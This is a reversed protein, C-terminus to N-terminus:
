RSLVRKNLASRPSTSTVRVCLKQVADNKLADQSGTARVIVEEMGRVRAAADANSQQPDVAVEAQYLNVRTLAFAPFTLLGMMLVALYRM